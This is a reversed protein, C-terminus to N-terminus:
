DLLGQQAAAMLAETKNSADLKRYTTALLRQMNRESYGITDALRGITVGSALIRLWDIEQDTVQMAGQGRTDTPTWDRFVVHPAISLGAGVAEVAVVLWDVSMAVPLVVWAGYRFLPESLAPSAVLAITPIQPTNERIRLFLDCDQRSACGAVLLSASEGAVAWAVPHSVQQVNMGAAVLVSEAGAATLPALSKTAIGIRM